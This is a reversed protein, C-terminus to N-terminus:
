SRSAGGAGTGDRQGWELFTEKACEEYEDILEHLTQAAETFQGEEVGERKYNNVFAKRRYITDFQSLNLRMLQHARPHAVHYGGDLEM